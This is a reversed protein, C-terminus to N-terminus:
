IYGVMVCVSFALLYVQLSPSIRGYASGSSEDSSIYFLGVPYTVSGFGEAEWKWSEGKTPNIEFGDKL